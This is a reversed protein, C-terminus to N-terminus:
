VLLFSEWKLPINAGGELWSQENGLQLQLDPVLIRRDGGVHYYVVGPGKNKASGAGAGGLACRSVIQVM